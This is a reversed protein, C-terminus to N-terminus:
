ERVLLRALAEATNWRAYEYLGYKIPVEVRDSERKWRKITGNIKVRRATGDNAIIWAHDGYGLAKIEDLTMPRFQAEKKTYGDILTM